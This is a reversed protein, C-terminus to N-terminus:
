QMCWDSCLCCIYCISQL